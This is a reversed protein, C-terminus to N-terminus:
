GAKKQGNSGGSEIFKVFESIKLLQRGAVKYSPLMGQHIYYYLTGEPISSFVSAHKVRMYKSEM